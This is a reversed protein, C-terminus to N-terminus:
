EMHVVQDPSSGQEKPNLWLKEQLYKLKFKHEVWIIESWKRVYIKKRWDLTNMALWKNKEWHPKMSDIKESIHSDYDNWILYFERYTNEDNCISEKLIDDAYKEIQDYETKWLTIKPRKIEVVINRRVTESESSTKVLFLDLEKKSTSTIEPDDIGLVDTAYKYLTKKLQWETNVFLRFGEWFIWPNNNLVSQLHKVELTEKEYEYLLAELDSIVDLRKQVEATTRVINTLNTRELLAELTDKDEQELWFVQELIKKILNGDQSSLLAAFITCVFKRDTESAWVFLGPAIIYVEQLLSDYGETDYIDYDSLNPISKETHLDKIISESNTKLIPRRIGSLKVKIEDIIKKKIKNKANLHLPLWEKNEELSNEDGAEFISSYIYVSHRFNDRNKNFWTTKTFLESSARDKYVFFRSFEKPKELRVIISVDLTNTDLQKQLESSFDKNTFNIEDKIIKSIDIPVGNVCISLSQDWKLFWWFELSLYKYLDEWLASSMILDINELKVETWSVSTTTDSVNIATDKKLIMKKNWSLVEISNAFRIFSYRWRGLKGHPLTKDNEDKDSLKSSSLFYKTETSSFDRGCGDDKIIISNISKLAQTPVDYLIDVKKAWADFSNWIYEWISKLPEKKYGKLETEISQKNLELNNEEPM